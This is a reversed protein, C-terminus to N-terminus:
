KKNRGIQTMSQKAIKTEEESMGTKAKIITDSIREAAEKIMINETLSSTRLITETQQAAKQLMTSDGSLGVKTFIQTEATFFLGRPFANNEIDLLNEDDTYNVVVDTQSKEDNTFQVTLLRHKGKARGAASLKIAFTQVEGFKIDTIPIKINSNVPKINSLKYVDPMAKYIEKLDVGSSMHISLEPKIQVITRAEDMQGSIISPIDSPESIHKWVGHSHEAINSLLDENYKDGIGLAVISIDSEGIEEALKIKLRDPINDTPEGDTLIVIRKPIQQSVIGTSIFQQFVADMGKYLATGGGSKIKEIKRRAELMDVWRIDQLDILIESEDSFTMISIYDGPQLQNLLQLVATKAADIKKGRMSGSRDILICIASSVPDSLPTLEPPFIDVALYIISRKNIPLYERNLACKLSIANDM